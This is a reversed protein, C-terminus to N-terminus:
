SEVIIEGQRLVEVHDDIIRVITSPSTFPLDGGDIIIDPASEKGEFMAIVSRTDYPSELGSINASTSVIPGNLKECLERVLPHSTLRFAVTGDRVVGPALTHEERVDVVVTLPGPWFKDALGQLTPTWSVFRKAMDIDSVVVLVSKGEERQKIAFVKEVAATNKADCGLGYCTETPYVITKGEKLATEIEQIDLNNQHIIQMSNLFV